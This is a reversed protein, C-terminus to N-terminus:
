WLMVLHACVRSEAPQVSLMLSAMSHWHAVFSGCDLALHAGGQSVNACSDFLYHRADGGTGCKVVARGSPDEADLTSLMDGLEQQSVGEIRMSFEFALHTGNLHEDSLLDSLCKSAIDGTPDQQMEGERDL